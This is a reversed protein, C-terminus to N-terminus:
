WVCKLLWCECMLLAKTFLDKQISKKNRMSYEVCCALFCSCFVVAITASATIATYRILANYRSPLVTTLLEGWTRPTAAEFRLVFAGSATLM